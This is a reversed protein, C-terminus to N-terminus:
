EDQPLRVPDFEYLKVDTVLRAAPNIKLGPSVQTGLRREHYSQCFFGNRRAFDRKDCVLSAIEVAIPFATGIYRYGSGYANLQGAGFESPSGNNM